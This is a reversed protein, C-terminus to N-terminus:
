GPTDDRPYFFVVLWRGRFGGLSIRQAFQNPLSFAPPEQGVVIASEAM